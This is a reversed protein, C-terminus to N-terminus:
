PRDERFTGYPVTHQAEVRISPRQGGLVSPLLPLPVPYAVTATVVSGPRLCDVPDPSCRVDLSRRGVDLHQDELALETAAVAHEVAVAETPAETFARGASRAASSVGFAARQVEFVTLVVYLLPVMLLIALWTFEVLASGREGRARM